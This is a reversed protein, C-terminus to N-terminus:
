LEEMNKRVVRDKKGGKKKVGKRKSGREKQGSKVQQGGNRLWQIKVNM